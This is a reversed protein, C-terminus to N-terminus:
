PPTPADGPDRHPRARLDGACRRGARARHLINALGGTASPRAGGADDDDIRLELLDACRLHVRITRPSAHRVANRVAEQTIRVLALWVLPPVARADADGEVEITVDAPALERARTRVEALLDALSPPESPSREWLIERLERLGDRARAGLRRLPEGSEDAELAVAEAQWALASLDAGVGDHLDRAIRAREAHVHAVTRAAAADDREITAIALRRSADRLGSGAIEAVGAAFLAFLATHVGRTAWAMAVIAPVALTMARTFGVRFSGANGVVTGLFLVWLASDPQDAVVLLATIAGQIVLMEALELRWFWPSTGGRWYAIATSLIALASAGMALSMAGVGVGFADRVAPILPLLALALATLCMGAVQVPTRWAIQLQAYADRMHADVRAQPPTPAPTAAAVPPAPAAARLGDVLAHLEGLGARAREGIARLTEDGGDPAVQLEDTQAVIARLDAEVGASIAAAIRGRELELRLAGVEATARERELSTAAIRVHAARQPGFTLQCVALMAVAYPVDGARDTVAWTIGVLVPVAVFLIQMVRGRRHGANTSIMALYPLWLLSDPRDAVALLGAHAAQVGVVEALELRWFWRSAGHRRWETTAAAIVVVCVGMGVAMEAVSVGLARQLDPHLPMAVLLAATGLVTAYMVPSRWGIQAGQQYRLLWADIQAGTTADTTADTTAGTTAGTM